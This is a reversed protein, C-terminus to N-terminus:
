RLVKISASPRVKSEKIFRMVEPHAAAYGTLQDVNVSRRTYGDRYTVKIGGHEHTIQLEKALAAVQAKKDNLQAIIDATEDHMARYEAMLQELQELKGQDQQQDMKTIEEVDREIDALTRWPVIIDGKTIM